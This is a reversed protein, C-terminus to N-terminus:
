AGLVALRAEDGARQARGVAGGRDRGVDGVGAIAGDGEVIQALGIAFLDVAQEVAAGVQQQDLGDEIRQVGLRREVRDGFDGFRAADVHGHHDRAGDGVFGAAQQRPLQRFREPIRHPVGLRDGDAEVAREAGFVQAGMDGIDAADGVRQDAGIRVGAQGVLEACYSSLGSYMARSIPSNASAPRTLMTPPQQPVVGSWIAAIAAATAGCLGRATGSDLRPQPQRAELREFQRRRDREDIDALAGVDGARRFEALQDGRAIVGRRQLDRAVLDLVARLDDVDVHVFAQQIGFGRHHREEVEDGGLGVDGAHRHHDVGRFEVHDLGAQFANLALRDHIRDRHLFAHLFEDVLGPDRAAMARSHHHHREVLGALGIRERALGLDALAGVVDQDLSTPKGGSSMM